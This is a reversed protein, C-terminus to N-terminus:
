FIERTKEEHNIVYILAAREKLIEIVRELGPRDIDYIRLYVRRNGKAAQEPTSLISSIRGGYDRITETIEKLGAPRDELELAIQTGKKGGGGLFLILRFIDSKTVVGLVGEQRNVVPLGSVHYMLLKETAEEVTNDPQITIPSKTMISKVRVHWILDFLDDRQFPDIGAASSKFIDGRTVIGALQDTQKVPLLNIGHRKLLKIANVISADGDITIAPKSMWNKVLM